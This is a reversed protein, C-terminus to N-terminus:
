LFRIVASATSVMLVEELERTHRIREESAHYDRSHGKGGNLTRSNVSALIMPSQPIMPAKKVESQNPLRGMARAPPVVNHVAKSTMPIM